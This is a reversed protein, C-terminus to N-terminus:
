GSDGSGDSRPRERQAANHGREGRVDPAPTSCTAFQAWMLAHEVGQAYGARESRAGYIIAEAAALEQVIARTATPRAGVEGTLPGPGGELLWQLAASAGREFEGVPDVERLAIVQAELVARERLRARSTVLGGDM